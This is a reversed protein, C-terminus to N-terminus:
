TRDGLPALEPGACTDRVQWGQAHIHQRLADAVAWDRILRAAEREAVWEVVEVPPGATAPESADPGGWTDAPLGIGSTPSHFAGLETLPFSSGNPLVRSYGDQLLTVMGKGQVRGIGTSSQMVLATHEDIGVCLAGPPLLGVLEDFRERGMFCRSTDLKDGGERNNWHPIITLALGYVSFFDLGAQWHLATGAKYIEYVPLTFVGVAIAAASAFVVAAGQLHRGLLYEWALTNRLQSAAYTPSGPGLFIADAACLPAVVGPEDPSLPTGLKRAPVVVTDPHFNRLRYALFDSVEQAVLASNPQFGAPTELIAIRPSPPLQRLLWEFVTRGTSSTEGSGFLVIPGPQTLM